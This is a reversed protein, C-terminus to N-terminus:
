VRVVRKNLVCKLIIGWTSRPKEPPKKEEPKGSIQTYVKIAGM